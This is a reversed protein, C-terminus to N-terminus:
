EYNKLFQDDLLMRHSQIESPLGFSPGMTSEVDMNLESDLIGTEKM